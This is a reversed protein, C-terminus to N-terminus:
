DGSCMDGEEEGLDLSKYEIVHLGHLVAENSAWKKFRKAVEKWWNCTGVFKGTLLTCIGT